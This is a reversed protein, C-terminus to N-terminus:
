ILFLLVFVLNLLVFRTNTRSRNIVFNMNLLIICVSLRYDAKEKAACACFM